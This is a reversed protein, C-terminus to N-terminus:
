LKDAQKKIADRIRSLALGMQNEVTNISIGLYTAIQTYKLKDKRNLLYIERCRPPLSEVAANVINCLAEIDYCESSNNENTLASQWRELLENRRKGDRIQNLLRNKVSNFLYARINDIKDFDVRQWLTAFVDQIVDERQKADNCYLMLFRYLDAFYDKYCKEFM